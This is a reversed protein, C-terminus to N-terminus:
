YLQKSSKECKMEDMGRGRQRHHDRGFSSVDGRACRKTGRGRRMVHIGRARVVEFEGGGGRVCHWKTRVGGLWESPGNRADLLHLCLTARRASQSLISRLHVAMGTRWVYSTSVVQSTRYYMPLGSTRISLTDIPCRSNSHYGMCVTLSHSLQAFSVLLVM